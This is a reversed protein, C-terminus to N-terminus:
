LAGWQRGAGTLAAIVCQCAAVCLLVGNSVFILDDVSVPFTVRERRAVEEQFYSSLPMSPDSLVARSIITDRACSVLMQLYKAAGEGSKGSPERYKILFEQCTEASLFIVCIYAV